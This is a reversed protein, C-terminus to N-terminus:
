PNKKSQKATLERRRQEAEARTTFPARDLRTNLAPDERMREFLESPTTAWVFYGDLGKVIYFLTGQSGTEVLQERAIFRM